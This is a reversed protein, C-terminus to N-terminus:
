WDLSGFGSFKKRLFFSRLKRCVCKITKHRITRCMYFNSLRAHSDRFFSKKWCNVGMLAFYILRVSALSPLLMNSHECTIAKTQCMFFISYSPSPFRSFFNRQRMKRKNSSGQSPHHFFYKFLGFFYIYETATSECGRGQKITFANMVGFEHEISETFILPSLCTSDYVYHSPKSKIVLQRLSRSSKHLCLKFQALQLAFM